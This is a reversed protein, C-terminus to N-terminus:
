MCVYMVDLARRSNLYSIVNNIVGIPRLAKIDSPQRSVHRSFSEVQKMARSGWNM